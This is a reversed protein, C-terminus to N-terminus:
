LIDQSTSKSLVYYYVCYDGSCSFYFRPAVNQLYEQFTDGGGLCAAAISLKIFCCQLLDRERTKVQGHTIGIRLVNCFDIWRISWELSYAYLCHLPYWIQTTSVDHLPIFLVVFVLFYESRTVRSRSILGMFLINPRFGWWLRIM